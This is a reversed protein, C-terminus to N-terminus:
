DRSDRDYFAKEEFDIGLDAFSEKKLAQLLDFIEDTFDELVDRERRECYREVLAKFVKSFDM